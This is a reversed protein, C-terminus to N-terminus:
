EVRGSPVAFPHVSEEWLDRCGEFSLRALYEEDVDAICFQSESRSARNVLVDSLHVATLLTFEDSSCVSPQHHLAVAEVVSSPFGWLDLLYGGVDAHNAGFVKTEAQYLPIECDIALQLVELYSDSLNSALVLKGVM